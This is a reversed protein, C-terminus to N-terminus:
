SLNIRLFDNLCTQRDVQLFVHEHIYRFLFGSCVWRLSTFRVYINAGYSLKWDHQGHYRFLYYSNAFLNSSESFMSEFKRATPVTYIYRDQIRNKRLAKRCECESSYSLAKDALPLPIVATRSRVTIFPDFVNVFLHALRRTWLDFDAVNQSRRWLWLCYLGKIYLHIIDLFLWNSVLYM